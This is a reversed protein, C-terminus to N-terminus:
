SGLGVVYLFPLSQGVIEIEELEFVEALCM